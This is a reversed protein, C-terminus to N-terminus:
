YLLKQDSDKKLGHAQFIADLDDCVADHQKAKNSALKDRQELKEVLKKLAAADQKSFFAKEEAREKDAFKDSFQVRTVSVMPARLAIRQSMALVKSSLM